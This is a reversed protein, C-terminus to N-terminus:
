TKYSRSLGRGKRTITFVTMELADDSVFPKQLGTAESGEETSEGTQGCCNGFASNASPYSSQMSSSMKGGMLGPVMPNM